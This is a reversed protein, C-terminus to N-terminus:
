VGSTKRYMLGDLAIILILTLVSSAGIRILTSTLNFFTFSEIFFLLTQHLLVMVVSYRLFAGTETYISPVFDEYEVKSFFINMLPKRLTAVITTAAANMGPTNLFIDIILGMLFGSIVVYFLNRNKPLKILFYIYLIPVAVGFVSIRNLVLTQLLVLVVFGAMERLFTTKM